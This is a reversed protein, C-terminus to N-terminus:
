PAYLGGALEAQLEQAIQVRRAPTVL